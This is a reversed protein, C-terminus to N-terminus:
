QLTVNGSGDVVGMQGLTLDETSQQIEDLFGIMEMNSLNVGTVYQQGSKLSTDKSLVFRKTLPTADAGYMKVEKVFGNYDAGHSSLWERLRTREIMVTGKTFKDMPGDRYVDFRAKIEGRPLRHPDFTPNGGKTHMVCLVDAAVENLYRKVLDFGTTRNDEITNRMGQMRDVVHQIGTAFDYRIVGLQQGITCAVHQLVLEAQWFRESGKFKMGYLHHFEKKTAAIRRRIEDEGLRVFESIIVEGAVGHNERMFNVLINGADSTEHFIKHVPIEIELLRIFQADSEIGGSVLKSAWSINTSVTVNTAWEKTDREVASRTLRAKDRGQTVDFCFEGVREMYTAEDISMPLNGHVSLRNFIANHTAKSSFHLNKPDGWVSQAMMQAVSKGGGTKGSLSITLGTLGTFQWLPASFASNLIFVHWPMKAKEFFCAGEAWAELSGKSTYMAAGSNGAASNLSVIDVTVSGDLERKYFRDGLVFQTNKEKWGMSGYINSMSRKKRLEDMYSRLMFQFGQTQKKGKLVIGQDAIATSFERSDDNLYAQRFVLDSWGVHPRKWKFRVTEYGLHADRGYSLPRVDFPCVEVETGDISQVIGNATHKFIKHPKISPDVGEPLESKPIEVETFRMGCRTPSTINGKLPCKDCGKPREDQLKTCTAPGTTQAKWQYMKNLTETESYNPHKISWSKAVEEADECYAAIGMLKYWMPESVQDQNDVAWAVQQCKSYIAAADAPDFENTVAMAKAISSVPGLAHQLHQPVAAGPSQVNTPDVTLLLNQLTPLDYEPADMLVCVEAGNKPNHTGVPRLVRASDATVAPDFAFNNKQFTDKLADALPQWQAPPVAEDLTWYVHLGRGSSVILPRPMGTIDLFALLAALGDKQTAYGKDPVPTGDRDVQDVKEPGCDIDLFLSKTFAVNEQKRSAKSNFTSLAYYTNNGGADIQQCKTALEGVSAVFAQQPAAGDNIVTVCYNGKTPLVRQFFKLTDM